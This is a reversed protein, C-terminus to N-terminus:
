AVRVSYQRNDDFSYALQNYSCSYTLKDFYHWRVSLLTPKGDDININLMALM